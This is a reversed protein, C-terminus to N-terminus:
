LNTVWRIGNCVLCDDKFQKLIGPMANIFIKWKDRYQNEVDVLYKETEERGYVVWNNFRNTRLHEEMLLVRAKLWVIEGIYTQSLDCLLQDYDCECSFELGVGFGEKGSIEKDGYWGKTYGCDNPMSGNCGTFCTLYSSGVPVNTGDLLVRAFSGKVEYAVNFSNVENATLNINYTSVIGGAHDDYIKLSINDLSVLPYVKVTHIKLKRLAGRIRTNKYLTLGREKAETPFTVAPKFESTSYKKASLNSIVNNAALASMLDNRVLIVAQQVKKKALTLGSIYEENAIHALNLVSIEPADMLDLGSLSTPADDSNCVDRVSIINDLM